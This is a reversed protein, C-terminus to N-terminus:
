FVEEKKNPKYKVVVRRDRGRGTSETEVDDEESLVSHIIMREYSTTPEMEVDERLFRAREAVVKAGYEIKEIKKLHYDGVDVFFRTEHDEEKLTRRIIYNLARLNEGNSGILLNSDDKSDIVVRYSDDGRDERYVAEYSVGMLDLIREIKELFDSDM